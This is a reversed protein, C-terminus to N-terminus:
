TKLEGFNKSKKFREIVSAKFKKFEKGCDNDRQMGYLVVGIIILVSMCTALLSMPSLGCDICTALTPDNDLMMPDIVYIFGIVSIVVFAAFGLLIGSWNIKKNLRWYLSDYIIGKGHFSQSLPKTGKLKETTM